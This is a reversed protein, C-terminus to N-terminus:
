KSLEKIAEILLPIIKEYKVAKYGDERTTVAEPLVAEIQQALVGVDHGTHTNQKDNWDFEVGSIKKVKDLASEIPKANDKLREDSTYYAVIDGTSYLTGTITTNGVVGLTGNVHLKYTPAAIGIGVNGSSNIRIGKATASWQGIVLGGTGDAGAGSYYILGQDGSQTLPNYSTPGTTTSPLFKFGQTDLAANIQLAAGNSAASNNVIRVFNNGNGGPATLDINNNTNLDIDGGTTTLNVGGSGTNVVFKDTTGSDGDAGFIATGSVVFMANTTSGLTDTSVNVGVFPGSRVTLVPKGQTQSVSGNFQAIVQNAAPSLQSVILSPINTSSTIVSLASTTTVKTQLYSIDGLVSLSGNVTVNSDYYAPDSYRSIGNIRFNPSIYSGTVSPVFTFNSGTTLTLSNFGNTYFKVGTQGNVNLYNQTAQILSNGTGDKALIKLQNPNNDVGDIYLSQAVNVTAELNNTVTKNYFNGFYFSSYAACLSMYYANFDLVDTTGYISSKNNEPTYILGAALADNNVDYYNTYNTFWNGYVPHISQWSETLGNFAYLTNDSTQFLTDGPQALTTYNGRNAVFGYFLNSVPLGGLTVGDGIFLRTTDQSYGLEGTTLLTQLRDYDQGRRVLVKVVTDNTIQFAM